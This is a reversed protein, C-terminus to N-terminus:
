AWTPWTARRWRRSKRAFADRNQYIDEVTMTGLIARLHGELTQTAMNKIEDTYKSLVQEATAIIDDGKMKIQAVGDM